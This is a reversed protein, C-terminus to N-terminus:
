KSRCLVGRIRRWFAVYLSKVIKDPRRLFYEVWYGTQLTTHRGVWGALKSTVPLWSGAFHHIVYTNDTLYIKGDEHRKPCFFDRPYIEVYGPMSIQNGSLDAGKSEMLKTTYSLNPETDLTGDDKIFPKDQYVDLQEKVWLGGKESGMIGTLCYGPMEFGTFATHTLFRDIPRLVEVDSDMYVGGETYLAYLRVYDTVFAWKRSQYAERVFRVSDIDFNDENWEKIAYDPLHKKWSEICKLALAPKQGRGFWCYHIIKPIM